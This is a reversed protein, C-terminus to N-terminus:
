PKQARKRVIVDLLGDFADRMAWAKSTYDDLTNARLLGQGLADRVGQCSSEHELKSAVGEYIRYCAEHNGQNYVPAGVAIAGGIEDRAADLAQDDCGDLVSLDHAPVRRPVVSKAQPGLKAIEEAIKANFDELSSRQDRQLLDRVYNSPIGFNINQGETVLARVVGIVEGRPNFLPGGSSGQSIPASIQLLTLTNSVPRVSSVLGDSVTYDFVGLPNGIAIVPDGAEVEDSDGLPLVSSQRSPGVLLIVLDRELDYAGIAQLPLVTGDLVQVQVENAGAIVHLNTV